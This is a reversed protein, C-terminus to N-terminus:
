KDLGHAIAEATSKNIVREIKSGAITKADKTAQGQQRADNFYAPVAVM